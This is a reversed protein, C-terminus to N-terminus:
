DPVQAESGTVRSLWSLHLSVREYVATAGYLGQPVPEGTQLEGRAVGVLAYGQDTLMLAPGGSDGLGPMGELDEARSSADGPDDFVFELWHVARTVVNGAVRFHRDPRHGARQGNGSYGWGMILLRAGEEDQQRYLPLPSFGPDRTLHLLALDTGSDATVSPQYAPHLVARDIGTERGAVSVPWITGAQLSAGVPTEQLCHAATLAWDGAVLTAMCYRSGSREHLWFVQPFDRALARYDSDRRDHRIIIASASAALCLMVPMLLIAARKM